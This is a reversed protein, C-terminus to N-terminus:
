RFILSPAPVTYWGPPCQFRPTSSINDDVRSRTRPISRRRTTSADIMGSTVPLLVLAGVMIIPSRARAQNLFASRVEDQLNRQPRCFPCSRRARRIGRRRPHGSGGEHGCGSAARSLASGLSIRRVGLDGLLTVSLGAASSGVLVNVPKPHVTKVIEAIESPASVGPAYLGAGADAYAALRNLSTNLPTPDAVLWAECRATLMVPVGSADIASRAARIREIAFEASSCLHSHTEPRMRSQCDLSELRSAAPSM